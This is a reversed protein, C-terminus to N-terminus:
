ERPLRSAISHTGPVEACRWQIHWYGFLYRCLQTLTTTYRVDMHQREGEYKIPEQPPLDVVTVNSQNSCRPTILINYIEKLSENNAMMIANAWLKGMMLQSSHERARIGRISFGLMCELFTECEQYDNALLNNGLQSRLESVTITHMDFLTVQLGSGTVVAPVSKAGV